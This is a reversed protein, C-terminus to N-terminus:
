WYLALLDETARQLSLSLAQASYVCFGEAHTVHPPLTFTRAKNLALVLEQYNNQGNQSAYIAMLKEKEARQGTIDVLLNIPSQVSIEYACAVPVAASSARLKQLAAWVLQATARHDPHLELPGPFFVTAPALVRIASAIQEVLRDSLTLTRDQESWCSLTEVGMMEAARQVEQQRISVLDSHDGGLAGDTLVIVHTTITEARARLLSGGMGFSEDDAHPAFVLWPGAPLSSVAYPVLLHEPNLM